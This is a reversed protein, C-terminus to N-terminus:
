RAGGVSVRTQSGRGLLSIIIMAVWTLGFSVLAVAAQRFPDATGLLALYPAFAPRALFSAITFEGIVIALTLFAGSIVAVRVNPLIIRLLITPWGAGLIQGAETLARIDIAALGADAARYMYPLSLVVYAAVLLVDSGTSSETLAFPPRSYTSILGFVLVVPPVMFPLLTIFEVIPRLRPLKLRVWFATPVVLATSVIVTAMGIVFSYLLSSAFEKDTFIGAYAGTMPVDRLSFALTGILPLFFYIAGVIFVLWWFLRVVKMAAV